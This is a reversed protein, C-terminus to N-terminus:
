NKIALTQAHHHTMLFADWFVSVGVIFSERIKEKNVTNEADILESLQDLLRWEFINSTYATHSIAATYIWFSHQVVAEIEKSHNNTNYYPTKLANIDSLHKASSIIKLLTTYFLHGAEQPYKYQNLRYMITDGTMPHLAFTADTIDEIASMTWGNELKPVWHYDIKDVIIWNKLAPLASNESVPETSYDTCFGIIEISKTKGAEISIEGTSFPVLYPQHGKISPIYVPPINLIHNSDSINEIFLTAIHGTTNGTSLVSSSLNDPISVQSQLISVSTVLLCTIGLVKLERIFGRVKCKNWM